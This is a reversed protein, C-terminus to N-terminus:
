SRTRAARRLMLLTACGLGATIAWAIGFVGWYHLAPPVVALLVVVQVAPAQTTAKADGVARLYAVLVANLAGLAMNIVFIKFLPVASLWGTGLVLLFLPQAVIRLLIVIMALLAVAIAFYLRFLRAAERADRRYHQSFTPFLYQSMAIVADSLLMQALKSSMQYAGLQAPGLLKGVIVKDFQNLVLTVVSSAWIWRSFGLYHGIGAWSLRVPPRPSMTVWTLTSKLMEGAIMSILMSYAGAGALALAIGISCDTFSASIEIAAIHQFRRERQVIFYTPSAVGRLLPLGAALQLLLLSGGLHFQSNMLPALAILLLAVFVGRTVLTTWVAGLESHTPTERGQIVAQALGTDSLSEAIAVSLLAISVSGIAAPGLLRGIALFKVAVLGRVIVQQLLVWTPASPALTARASFAPVRVSKV